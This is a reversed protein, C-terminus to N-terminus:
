VHVRRDLSDLNLIPAYFLFTLTMAQAVDFMFIHNPNSYITKYIPAFIGYFSTLRPVQRKDSGSYIAQILTDSM